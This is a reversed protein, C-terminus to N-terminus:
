NKKVMEFEPFKIQGVKHVTQKIKHNKDSRVFMFGLKKYFNIAQSNYTAVHVIIDKKNGFFKKVKKWFM